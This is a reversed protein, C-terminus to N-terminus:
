FNSGYNTTNFFQAMGPRKTKFKTKEFCIITCMFKQRHSSEFQLNITNSAVLRGITGCGCGKFMNLKQEFNIMLFRAYNKEGCWTPTFYAKVILDQGM